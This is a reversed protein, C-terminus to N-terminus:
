GQRSHGGGWGLARLVLLITVMWFVHHGFLVTRVVEGGWLGLAVMGVIGLLPPSWRKLSRYLDHQNPKM